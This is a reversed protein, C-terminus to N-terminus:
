NENNKYEGNINDICFKIKELCNEIDSYNSEDILSAILKTYIKIANKFNTKSKNKNKIKQYALGIDMLVDAQNEQQSAEKFSNFVKEYLTIKSIENMTYKAALKYHFASIKPETERYKNAFEEYKKSAKNYNKADLAKEAERLLYDHKM